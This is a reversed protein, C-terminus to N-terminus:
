FMLQLSVMPKSISAFWWFLNLFFDKLCSYKVELFFEGDYLFM